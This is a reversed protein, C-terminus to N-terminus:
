LDCHALQKALAGLSPRGQAWSPTTGAASGGSSLGGLRPRFRSRPRVSATEPNKELCRRLIRELAPPFTSDTRSLEPPDEKLIANMTEVASDGPLRAEGLADRLAGRRLLLHRLSPRGPEGSVQEPSMYGGHGDRRGPETVASPQRRRRTGAEETSSPTLKALGFDLIKM